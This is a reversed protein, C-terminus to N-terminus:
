NNNRYQTEDLYENLCAIDFSKTDNVALKCFSYDYDTKECNNVIAANRCIVENHEENAMVTFQNLRSYVPLLGMGIVFGLSIYAIALGCKVKKDITKDLLKFIAIVFSTISGMCLVILSLMLGSIFGNDGSIPNTEIIVAILIVFLPVLHKVFSGSDVKEVKEKKNVKKKM